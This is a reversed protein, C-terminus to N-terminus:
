VERENGGEMLKRLKKLARVHIYSINARPQGIKEAISKLTCGTFYYTLIVDRKKKPLESLAKGLRYDNISFINGFSEFHYQFIPYTDCEGCADQYEAYIEEFSVYRKIDRGHERYLSIACYRIATKCFSNFAREIQKKQEDTYNM